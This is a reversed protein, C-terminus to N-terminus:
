ASKRPPAVRQGPRRPSVRSPGALFHGALLETWMETWKCTSLFISLTEQPAVRAIRPSLARCPRCPAVCPSVPSGPRCLAVRPVGPSLPRCPLASGPDAWCAPRAGDLVIDLVIDLPIDV